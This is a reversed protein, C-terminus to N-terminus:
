SGGHHHGGHGGHHPGEGGFADPYAEIVAKMLDVASGYTVFPTAHAYVRGDEDVSVHAQIPQGDVEIRYSTVIRVVHSGHSFERMSTMEHGAHPSVYDPFRTKVWEPHSNAGDTPSYRELVSLDPLGSATAGTKRGAEPKKTGSPKKAM